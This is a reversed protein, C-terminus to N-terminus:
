NLESIRELFRNTVKDWTYDKAIKSSELGFKKCIEPNEYFYSICEALQKVDSSTFILANNNENVCDKAGVKDSVIVPLGSAMAELVVLGFSEHISPLVFLSSEQYNLIPDGPNLVVEINRRKLPILLKNFIPIFYNAINGNFVVRIGTIGTIDLAKLLIHVGKEINVNGVFLIQFFKNKKEILNVAKFKEVDVGLPSQLINDNSIGNNKLSSSVLSSISWQMNAVSYDRIQLEGRSASFPTFGIKQSLYGKKLDSFQTTPHCWQNHVISRAGRSKAYVLSKYSMGNRVILVSENNVLNNREIISLSLYDFLRFLLLQQQNKFNLKGLVRLTLSAFQRVVETIWNYNEGSDLDFDNGVNDIGRAIWVIEIGSKRIESVMNSDITKTAGLSHASYAGSIWIINRKKKSV